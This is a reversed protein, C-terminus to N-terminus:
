DGDTIPKGDNYGGETEAPIASGSYSIRSVGGRRTFDETMSRTVGTVGM